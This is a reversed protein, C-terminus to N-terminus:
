GGGFIVPFNGLLDPLKRFPGLGKFDPAFQHIQDFAEIPHGLMDFTPIRTPSLTGSGRRVTQVGLEGAATRAFCQLVGRAAAM